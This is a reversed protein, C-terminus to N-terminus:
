ILFFSLMWFVLIMADLGMVEHCISPSVTCVTVSKIKKPELIVTSASQLWSILIWKCRPFFAIILRSLMNFLLSMVKGVFTWRTLAITIEMLWTHIHFNSWLCLQHGFFQHKQVTTNCFIRSLGKSQVSILGTLALPSWDQIKMQLDSASASVGISQSGSTLFQSTPFSGSVPFSQLCFFPIVSSSITPHCWQSSPCSNSCVEPMPSPCPVRSHQLELPRLSDSVVSRSFQVQEQLVKRLWYCWHFFSVTHTFTTIIWALSVAMVAELLSDPRNSKAEIKKMQLFSYSYRGCWTISFLFNFNKM